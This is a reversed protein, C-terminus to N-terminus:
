RSFISNLIGVTASATKMGEAEPGTEEPGGGVEPHPVEGGGGGQTMAQELEQLIQMGDEQSIEGSQVLMAIVQALDEASHPTEEQPNGPAMRAEMEPTGVAEPGGAAEM